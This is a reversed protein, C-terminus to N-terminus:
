NVFQVEIGVTAFLRKVLYERQRESKLVRTKPRSNALKLTSRDLTNGVRRDNVQALANALPTDTLMDDEKAIFARLRKPVRSYENGRIDRRVRSPMGTDYIQTTTLGRQLCLFGLCCMTPQDEQNHDEKLLNGGGGGRRWFRRDIILLNDNENDIGYAEAFIKRALERAKEREYLNM